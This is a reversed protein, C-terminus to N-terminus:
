RPAVPPVARVNTSSRQSAGREEEAHLLHSAPMVLPPDAVIRMENNIEECLKGFARMSDRTHAKELARALQSRNAATM